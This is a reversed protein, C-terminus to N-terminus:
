EFALLCLLNPMEETRLNYNLFLKPALSLVNAYLHLNINTAIIINVKLNVTDFYFYVIM